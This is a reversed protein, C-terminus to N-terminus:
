NETNSQIADSGGQSPGDSQPVATHHLNENGEGTQVAPERQHYSLLHGHRLQTLVPVVWHNPSSVKEGEQHGVSFSSSSHWLCFLNHFTGSWKRCSERFVTVLCTNTARHTKGATQRSTHSAMMWSWSMRIGKRCQITGLDPCISNYLLSRNFLLCSM